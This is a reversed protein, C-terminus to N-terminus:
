ERSEELEQQLSYNDDELTSIEDQLDNIEENLKEIEEKHEDLLTEVQTCAPCEDYRNGSYAIEEGHQDCIQM